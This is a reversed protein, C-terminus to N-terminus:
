LQKFLKFKIYDKKIGVILNDIIKPEFTNVKARIERFLMDGIYKKITADNTHEAIHKVMYYFRNMHSTVKRSLKNSAINNLEQELQVCKHSAGITHYNFKNYEKDM